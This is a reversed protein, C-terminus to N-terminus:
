AAMDFIGRMLDSLTEIPLIAIFKPISKPVVLVATLRM